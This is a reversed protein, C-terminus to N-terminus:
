PLLLLAQESQPRIPQPVMHSGPQIVVRLSMIKLTLSVMRSVYFVSFIARNLTMGFPFHFSFFLLVSESTVLLPNDGWFCTVMKASSVAWNEAQTTVTCLVSERKFNRAFIKVSQITLKLFKINEV